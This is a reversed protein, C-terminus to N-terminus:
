GRHRLVRDPDDQERRTEKSSQLERWKGDVFAALCTSAGAAHPRHCFAVRAAEFRSHFAESRYLCRGSVASIRAIYRSM